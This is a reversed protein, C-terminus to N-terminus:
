LLQIMFDMEQKKFAWVKFLDSKLLRGEFRVYKATISTDGSGKADLQLENEVIMRQSGEPHEDLYNGWLQLGVKLGKKHAEAVLKKFFPHMLKVDYFNAGERSTLFVLSYKCNKAISDVHAEINAESIINPSIFWYGIEPHNANAFEKVYSLKQAQVMQFVLCLQLGFWLVIGKKNNM